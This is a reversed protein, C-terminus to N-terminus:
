RPKRADGLPLEAKTYLDRGEQSEPPHRPHANRAARRPARQRLAHGQRRHRRQGALKRWPRRRHRFTIVKDIDLSKYPEGWRLVPIHIM